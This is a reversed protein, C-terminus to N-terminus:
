TRRQSRDGEIFRQRNLLLKPNIRLAWSVMSFAYRLREAPKLKAFQEVLLQKDPTLHPRGGKM